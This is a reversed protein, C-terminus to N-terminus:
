LPSACQRRLLLLARGPLALCGIAARGRGRRRRGERGKEARGEGESIKQENVSRPRLSRKCVGGDKLESAGIRERERARAPRWNRREEHGYLVSFDGGRRWDRIKRGSRKACEAGLGRRGRATPRGFTNKIRRIRKRFSKLLITRGLELTRPLARPRAGTSSIVGGPPPYWLVPVATCASGADWAGALTAVCLSPGDTRESDESESAEGAGRGILQPSSLVAM